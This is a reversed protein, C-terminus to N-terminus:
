LICYKKDKKVLPVIISDTQMDYLQCLSIFSGISLPTIGKEWNSITKPSVEMIKAVTEMSYGANVRAAALTIRM